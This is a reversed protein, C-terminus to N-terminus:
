RYKDKFEASEVEMLVVVMIQQWFPDSQASEVTMLVVVIIQQWFPDSTAEIFLQAPLSM